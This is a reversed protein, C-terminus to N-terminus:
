RCILDRIAAVVREVDSDGMASGSPLCVGRAFIDEAVHGGMVPVGELVPKLHM